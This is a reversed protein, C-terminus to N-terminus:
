DNINPAGQARTALEEIAKWNKEERRYAAALKGEPWPVVSTLPAETPRVSEHEIVERLHRRLTLRILEQKPFPTRRTGESLAKHIDEDLRLPFPATKM